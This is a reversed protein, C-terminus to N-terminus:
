ELSIRFQPAPAVYFLETLRADAAVTFWVWGRSREGGNLNRANLMPEEGIATGGRYDFGAEDRVRIDAPSFDLAQNSENDIQVEAAVYRTGAPPQAPAQIVGPYPDQLQHLTVFWAPAAIRTRADAPTAQAAAHRSHQAGIVAGAGVGIAAGLVARRSRGMQDTM